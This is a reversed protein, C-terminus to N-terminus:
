KAPMPAAEAARPHAARWLAPETVSGRWIGRRARQAAEYGEIAADSLGAREDAFAWGDALQRQALDPTQATRCQALQRGYRDIAIATCSLDGERLRARLADRAAVGCPWRTGDPAGCDQHLEPADIGALRIRIAEPGTGIALSDGDAPWAKGSAARHTRPPPEPRLALWAIGVLFALLAGMRLMRAVRGRWTMRSASAGYPRPYRARRMWMTHVYPTWGVVSLGDM